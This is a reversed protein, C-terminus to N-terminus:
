RRLPRVSPALVLGLAIIALFPGYAYTARGLDTLGAFFPYSLLALSGLLALTAPIPQRRFIFVAFASAVILGAFAIFSVEPYAYYDGWAWPELLPPFDDRCGEECTNLAAGFIGAGIAIFAAWFWYGVALLVSLAISV